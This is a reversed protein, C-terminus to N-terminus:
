YPPSPCGAPVSWRTLAPLYTTTDRPQQTPLDGQLPCLEAKDGQSIQSRLGRASPPGLVVRMQSDQAPPAAPWLPVLIQLLSTSSILARHASSPAPLPGSLPYSWSVSPCVAPCPLFARPLSLCVRQLLSAPSRSLCCRGKGVRWKRRAGWDWFATAGRPALSPVAGVEASFSGDLFVSQLCSQAM